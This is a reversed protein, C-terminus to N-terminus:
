PVLRADRRLQRLDAPEEARAPRSLRHRHGRRDRM